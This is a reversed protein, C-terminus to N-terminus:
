IVIILTEIREWGSPRSSSEMIIEQLQHQLTEIREWGSPRSSSFNIVGITNM